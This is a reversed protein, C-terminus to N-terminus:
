QPNVRNFEARRNQSWASEDNGQAAPSEEGKSLVMIRSADIGNRVLYERVTKARREGLALNYETTGREDCHGEVMVKLEPHDKLYKLNKEVRDLQDKRIGAKDYDFYITDMEAIRGGPNLAPHGDDTNSVPAGAPIAGPQVTADAVAAIKVSNKEDCCYRGRSDHGFVLNTTKNLSVICHIPRMILRDALFGIPYTAYALVRLPHDTDDPDYQHARGTTPMVLTAAVLAALCLKKM